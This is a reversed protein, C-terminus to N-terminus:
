KYKLEHYYAFTFKLFSFFQKQIYNPCRFKFKKKQKYILVSLFYIYKYLFFFLLKPHSM